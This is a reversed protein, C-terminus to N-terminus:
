RKIQHLASSFSFPEACCVTCPELHRSTPAYVPPCFRCCFCCWWLWWWPVGCFCIVVAVVVVLLLGVASGGFLGGVVAHTVKPRPAAPLGIRGSALGSLFERAFPEAHDLYSMNKVGAVGGPLKGAYAAWSRAFVDLQAAQPCLPPLIQHLEQLLTLAALTILARFVCPPHLTAVPPKFFQSPQLCGVHLSPPSIMRAPLCARM